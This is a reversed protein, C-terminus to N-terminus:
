VHREGFIATGLRVITAGEQVAIEFDHSMGMSLERLLAPDTGAKLLTTRLESLQAFYPRAREPHEFFPPITMLGVLWLPWVAIELPRDRYREAVLNVRALAGAHDLTMLLIAVGRALDLAAHREIAPVVALRPARARDSESVADPVRRETVSLEPASRAAARQAEQGHTEM